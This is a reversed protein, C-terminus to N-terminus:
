APDNFKGFVKGLAGVGKVATEAFGTRETTKNHRTQEQLKDEEIDNKRNNIQNNTM